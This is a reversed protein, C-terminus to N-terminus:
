PACAHTAHMRVLGGKLSELGHLLLDAADHM